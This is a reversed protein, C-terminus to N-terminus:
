MGQRATEKMRYCIKILFFISNRIRHLLYVRRILAGRHHPFSSFVNGWLFPYLKKLVKLKSRNAIQIDIFYVRAFPCARKNCLIRQTNGTFLGLWPLFHTGLFNKYNNAM